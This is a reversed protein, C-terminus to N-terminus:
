RSGYKRDKWVVPVPLYFYFLLSLSLVVSYIEYLVLHILKENKELISLSYNIFASQILIKAIWVALALKFNLALLLLFLPFFLAQVFLLAVMGWPLQVAGKMWRKRQTLLGTLKTEPMSWALVRESFLQNSLYGREQIQKLMELDETISFPIKEYGGVADYAERSMAMNNGIATVSYGLLNVVKVMGLAFIWDLLQFRSFFGEGEIATVGSVLGVNESFGSLMEEIWHPPVKIDADTFFLYEGKAQKSLQALVNAKGQQHALKETIPTVFIHPHNAAFNNILELSADRSDDDGVLIEIKEKPYQLAVLAELCRLINKEENRVAVLVSVPPLGAKKQQVEEKDFLWIMLLLFDIIIPILMFSAIWLEFNIM